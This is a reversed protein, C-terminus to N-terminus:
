VIAVAVKKDQRVTWVNVRIKGERCHGGRQLCLPWSVSRVSCQPQAMYMRYKKSQIHAVEM